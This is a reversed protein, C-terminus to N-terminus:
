GPEGAALCYLVSSHRGDEEDSGSSQELADPASTLLEWLRSVCPM